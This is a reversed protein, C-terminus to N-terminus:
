QDRNGGKGEAGPPPPPRVTDALGDAKGDTKRIKRAMRQLEQFFDSSAIGEVKETKAEQMTPTFPLAAPNEMTRDLEDDKAPRDIELAPGTRGLQFVCSASLTIEETRMGAVLTGNQSRNILVWHGDRWLLEAHVRSVTMQRIVVDNDDARGIRILGRNEFKWTHVPVRHSEDLLDLTIRPANL